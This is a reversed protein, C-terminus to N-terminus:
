VLLGLEVRREHQEIIQGRLRNRGLILLSLSHCEELSAPSVVLRPRVTCALHALLQLQLFLDQISGLVILCGFRLHLEARGDGHLVAAFSLLHLSIILLVIVFLALLLLFSFVVLEIEVIRLFSNIEHNLLM